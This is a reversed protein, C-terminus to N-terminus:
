SQYTEDTVKAYKDDKKFNFKFIRIFLFQM